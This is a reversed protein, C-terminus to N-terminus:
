KGWATKIGSAKRSRHAPVFRGPWRPDTDLIYQKRLTRKGTIGREIVDEFDYRDHLRRLNAASRGPKGARDPYAPRGTLEEQAIDPRFHHPFKYIDRMPLSKSMMINAFPRAIRNKIAQNMIAQPKDEETRGRRELVREQIRRQRAGPLKESRGLKLTRGVPPARVAGYNYRSMTYNDFMHRLGKSVSSLAVHTRPDSLQGIQDALDSQNLIVRKVAPHMQAQEHEPEADAM